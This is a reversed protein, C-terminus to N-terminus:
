VVSRARKRPMSRVPTAGRMSASQDAQNEVYHRNLSTLSVHAADGSIDRYSRYLRDFDSGELL